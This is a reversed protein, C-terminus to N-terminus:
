GERERALKSSEAQFRKEYEAGDTSGGRTFARTLLRDHALQVADAHRYRWMVTHCKIMCKCDVVLCGGELRHIGARHGCLCNVKQWQYFRKTGAVRRGNHPGNIGM